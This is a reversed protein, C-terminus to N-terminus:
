SFIADVARLPLANAQRAILALWDLDAEVQEPAIRWRSPLGDIFLIIQAGLPLVSFVQEFVQEGQVAAAWKEDDYYTAHKLTECLAQRLRMAFPEHECGAFNISILSTTKDAFLGIASLISSEAIMGRLTKVSLLARIFALFHSKGVGRQGTIIHLAPLQAETNRTRPAALDALLRAALGGMEKTVLYSSVVREAETFSTTEHYNQLEVYAKVQRM